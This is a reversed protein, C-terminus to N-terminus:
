KVGGDAKVWNAPNRADGGKFTYGNKITGEQVGKMFVGPMLEHKHDEWYKAYDTTGELHAHMRILQDLGKAAANLQAANKDSRTSYPDQGFKDMQAVSSPRELPQKNEFVINNGVMKIAINDGVHTATGTQETRPLTSELTNLIAQRVQPDYKTMFVVQANRATEKDIRGSVAMKGFESSAYFAGAEKLVRPDYAGTELSKTQELTKNLLKTAEETAKEKNEVKGSYLDTLGQKLQGFLAKDNPTGVVQPVNPSNGVVGMTFEKIPVSAFIGVMPDGKFLESAVVARQIQPNTEVAALKAATILSKYRNDLMTAEDGSKVRPDLRESIVKNLDASIKIWPAALEPNKGAIAQIASNVRIMNMNHDQLADMPNRGKKIQMELDNAVAAIQDINASFVERTGRSAQEKAQYDALSMNFTAEARQEGRQAREEAARQTAQRFDDEVRRSTRFTALTANKAEDSMGDYFHYGVKAADLTEQEKIKNQFDVQRQAESIETGGYVSARAQTLEQVYQPYSQLMKMFNARSATTTQSSSWQGTTLADSYTKENNVYENIVAAKRQEAEEKRTDSLGKAFIDGIQSFIPMMSTTAAQQQVPAVPSTGQGQPDSLKTAQIGFDAM